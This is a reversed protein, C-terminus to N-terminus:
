GVNGDHRYDRWINEFVDGETDPIPRVPRWHFTVTGPDTGVKADGSSAASAPAPQHYEVEQAVGDLAGGDQQFRFADPLGAVTEEARRGYGVRPLDGAPDTYLVSGRSRGRHDLYDGMAALYTYQTTLIDRLLFARDISRRSGGDVSLTHPLAALQEGAWRKAREVSARSRVLGADASMTAQAQGLLDGTRDPAGAACRAVADALFARAEALVGAADGAFDELAEPAGRRRAAIYRAARTAGVQTSNLAAGGPRYVGHNGAAEGVPFLGRLNSQWWSDVLLGGNNHQVCVDVELPEAELDVYPNKERYLQYAPENMHRLREVPTGFLAGARALYERAEPDLRGWEVRERLPNRRFDLFVRRGRLATERYVLLDILSSGDRAKRIDFPWQYGKLFILSLQRGYDGVAESLFDRRDGGRADTSYFTPLVQMYTGSVNWRPAVSSLGFQWETLNKGRAGARLAAGTAGWQGHPFASRRYMGAPGGSAYVISGARVLVFRSAGAGPAVDRRLCLLGVAEGGRVVLDVVRLGGVVRTGDAVVKAELREVMTRSTYPGVSTARQRPDHDTKYGVFEGFRNQPFPVGLEVLHLFARSSLAAEVLANDGDMAGGAFLTRAMQAVSDAGGGALTLKYYTQKDSGANRSSGTRREDAVVLVDRQGFQVLRDAACYGAAGTGVVVANASLVPVDGGPFHLVQADEYISRAGGGPYSSAAPPDGPFATDPTPFQQEHM